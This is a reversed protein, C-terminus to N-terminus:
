KAVLNVMKGPVYIEKIITKGQLHQAIKPEAKAATLITDKNAGIPVTIKGRLKGMIQIPIEITDQIFYKEDHQPWPHHALTTDIM